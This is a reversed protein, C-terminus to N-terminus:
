STYRFVPVTQQAEPRKVTQTRCNSDAKGTQDM